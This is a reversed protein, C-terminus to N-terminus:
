CILMTFRMSWVTLLFHYLDQLTSNRRAHTYPAIQIIYSVSHEIFSLERQMTMQYRLCDSHISYYSFM